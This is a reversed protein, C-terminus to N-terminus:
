RSPWVRSSWAGGNAIVSMATVLQIPTAAVEQGMPIRTISLASWKSVPRLM